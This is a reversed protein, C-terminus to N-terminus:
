AFRKRQSFVGILGSGILMLTGPEPSLFLFEQDGTDAHNKVPTLIEIKSFDVNSLNTTTALDYWYKPGLSGPPTGGMNVSPSFIKWIAFNINGWEIENTNNIQMLLYGAEEYKTQNNFRTHHLNGRNLQTINAQWTDGVNSQHYFDDCLTAIQSGNDITLYYPYTYQGNQNDGGLAAFRAEVTDALAATAGILSLGAIAAIALFKLARTRSM